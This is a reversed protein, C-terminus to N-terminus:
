GKQFMRSADTLVFRCLIKELKQTEDAKLPRKQKTKFKGGFARFNRIRNFRSYLRWDFPEDVKTEAAVTCTAQEVEVKNM